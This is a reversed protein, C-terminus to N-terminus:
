RGAGADAPPRPKNRLSWLKSFVFKLLLAVFVFLGALESTLAVLPYLWRFALGIVLALALVVVASVALDKM